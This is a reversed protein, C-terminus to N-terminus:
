GALTVFSEIAVRDGTAAPDATGTPEVSVDVPAAPSIEAVHVVAPEQPTAAYLDVLVPAQDGVSIAARGADPGRRAVIGVQRGSLTGRVAGEGGPTMSVTVESAESRTENGVGDRGVVVVACSGGPPVAAEGSLSATEGPAVNAPVDSTATEDGCTTTITADRVGATGDGAQWAVTIPLGGALPGARLRVDPRSVLPGTRDLWISDSLVASSRGRGHRLQVYLTHLGEEVPLSARPTRGVPQWSSWREGDPSTRLHTADRGGLDLAVSPDATAPAGAAIAFPRLQLAELDELTGSFLNGDLRKVGRVRDVGTQWFVWEDWGTAIAPPAECGWCAAWLPLEGFEEADGIVQDWMFVSTYLIPLRGTREYV